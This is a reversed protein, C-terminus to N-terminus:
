LASEADHSQQSREHHHKEHWIPGMREEWSRKTAAMFVHELSPQKRTLSRLVWNPKQHIWHILKEGQDGDVKTQLLINRFDAETAHSSEEISFQPFTKGLERAFDAMECRLELEYFSYPLFERRLEQTEGAAVVHGHNIIIIQNCSAEIEPLIHSSIIITHEGKLQDLLKRISQVQHPDLGITPEDMIVVEPKALIVDAIGVRQRFGKSLTGIVRNHAKHHLDCIELVEDVRKKVERYPVGKLNARYRLYEVVKLEETLPNNEPMYGIHKKVEMPERAVSFGCVYAEGSTAPILGSIIKLTTSKGAGNPGLFGLVKGKEVSFSVNDIARVGGYYKTLKKVELTKDIM